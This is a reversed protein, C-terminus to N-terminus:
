NPDTLNSTPDILHTDIDTVTSRVNGQRLDTILRDGPSTDLASTIIAGDSARKVIAYGRGLTRKPNLIELAGEATGIQQRRM